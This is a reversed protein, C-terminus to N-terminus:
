NKLILWKVDAATATFVKVTGCVFLLLFEAVRQIVRM